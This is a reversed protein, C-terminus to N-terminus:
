FTVNLGVNIRKMTPYLSSSQSWVDIAQERDDPIKSWLILDNGSLSIKLASLGLKKLDKGNLTYSVEVNKLRMYSADLFIGRSQLGGGSTNGSRFLPYAANSNSPTWYDALVSSAYPSKSDTAFGISNFYQSVNYAGLFQVMLSLGKYDAGLFTSYVNQPRDPYGSAIYDKSNIVGDGNFDVMVVDGPLRQSNSEYAVSGYLDDWSKTVGPQEIMVKPQGIQFGATKQYDPTLPTDAAFIVKDKASSFNLRTWLHVGSWTNQLKIDFEFGQNTVKGLNAAVPAAGFYAPISTALQSASMFVDSRDDRFVEISGSFIGKFFSFDLGFNQKQSVEWHLDPNGVVSQMYQQYTAGPGTAAEGIGFISGFTAAGGVRSWGEM